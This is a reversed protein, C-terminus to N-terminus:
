GEGRAKKLTSGIRELIPELEQIMKVPPVSTRWKEIAELDALMDPAAAAVVADEIKEFKGIQGGCGLTHWITGDGNHLWPGPTHKGCGM